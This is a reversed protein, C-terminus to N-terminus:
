NITLPILITKSGKDKFWAVKEKVIDVELYYKGREIPIDVMLDVKALDGTRLIQDFPTRIHDYSMTEGKTNLLHYSIFVPYEKDKSDWPATSRNIVWVPIAMKKSPSADIKEGNYYISAVFKVDGRLPGIKMDNIWAPALYSAVFISLVGHMIGLTFINRNRVFLMCIMLGFWFSLFMLKGNPSHAIAFLMAAATLSLSGKGLIQLFRKLIVGQLFFQQVLGGTIREVIRWPFDKFFGTLPSIFSQIVITDFYLTSFFLIMAISILAVVVCERGSEYINDLRIGLEKLTEKRIFSSLIWLCLFLAFSIAGAFSTKHWLKYFLIEFPDPVSLNLRYIAWYWFPVVWVNFVFIVAYITLEILSFWKPCAQYFGKLSLLTLNFQNAILM